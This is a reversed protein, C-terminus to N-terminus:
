DKVKIKIIHRVNIVMKNDLEIFVASEGQGIVVNTLIGSETFSPETNYSALYVTINKGKYNNLGGFM